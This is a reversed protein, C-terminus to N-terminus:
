KVNLKFTWEAKIGGEWPQSHEFLITSSDEKGAAAVKKTQNKRLDITSRYMKRVKNGQRHLFTLSVHYVLRMSSKRLYLVGITSSIAKLVKAIINHSNVLNVKYRNKNEYIPVEIPINPIRDM